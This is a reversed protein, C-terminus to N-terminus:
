YRLVLRKWLFYIDLCGIVSDNMVYLNRDNRRALTLADGGVANAPTEGVVLPDWTQPVIIPVKEEEPEATTGSAQVRKFAM